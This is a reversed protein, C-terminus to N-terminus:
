KKKRMKYQMARSEKQMAKFKGSGRHKGANKLKVQYEILNLAQKKMERSNTNVMVKRVRSYSASLNDKAKKIDGDDAEDMAREMSESSLFLEIDSLVLHNVNKKVLSANATGTLSINKKFKKRGKFDVADDYELRVTGASSINRSKSVEFEILCIKKEESILDGFKVVVENRKRDYKFGHVQKVSVGGAPIVYVSCNQAAVALLGNLEKSFIGPIKDSKDIYYYNANGYEAINTMLKENFYTGVGFTSTSIRDSRGKAIKQLQVQDTIGVNALGDSILLVRNVQNSRYNKEAQNYGELMGGSLNTSGGPRLQLVQSILSKKNKVNVPEIITAVRSDYAVLSFTDDPTLNKIIFSIAEKANSMKGGSSMSGSKDLVVVINLPLRKIKKLIKKAIFGTRVFFSGRSGKLFYKNQPTVEVNVYRHGPVSIVPNGTDRFLKEGTLKSIIDSSLYDIGDIISDKDACRKKGAAIVKGSKVETLRADIRIQSGAKVIAGSLIQRASLLKGVKQLNGEAIGSMVLGHQKLINKVRDRDLITVKSSLALNTSFLEAAAIKLYEYSPDGSADKFDMIAIVYNPNSVLRSNSFSFFVLLLAVPILKKM